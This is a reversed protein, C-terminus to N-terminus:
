LGKDFHEKIAAAAGLATFRESFPFKELFYEVVLEQQGDMRIISQSTDDDIEDTEVAEIEVDSSSSPNNSVEEVVENKTSLELGNTPQAVATEASEKPSSKTDESMPEIGSTSGSHPEADKLASPQARVNITVRSPTQKQPSGNAVTPEQQGGDDPKSFRKFSSTVEEANISPSHMVRDASMSRTARGGTDLRPRKRTLSSDADEMSDRRPLFPESSLARSIRTQAAAEEMVYDEDMFHHRGIGGKVCFSELLPSFCM